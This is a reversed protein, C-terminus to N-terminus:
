FATPSTRRGTDPGEPDGRETVTSDSCIGTRGKMVIRQVLPILEMNRHFVFDLLMPVNAGTVVAMREKHGAARRGALACSGSSLDTFVITGHPGAAAEVARCVEEPSAKDNSIAVFADSVGAIREVARVLAAAVDAHAVVVGQVTESM